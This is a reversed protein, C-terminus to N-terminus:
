IEKQERVLLFRKQWDGKANNNVEIFYPCENRIFMIDSKNRFLKAFYTQINSKENDSKTSSLWNSLLLLVSTSSRINFVIPAAIPQMRKLSNAM